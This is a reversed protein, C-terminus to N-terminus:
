EESELETLAKKAKALSVRMDEWRNDPAGGDIEHNSLYECECTLDHLADIVKQASPSPTSHQRGACYAEHMCDITNQSQMLGRKKFWAEFTQESM